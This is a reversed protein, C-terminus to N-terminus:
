LGRPVAEPASSYDAMAKAHDGKAEFATARRFLYATKRPFYQLSKNLDDIAEDHRGLALKVGAQTYLMERNGPDLRALADLDEQARDMRGREIWAEARQLYPTASKPLMAIAKAYDALAMEWDGKAKYIEARSYFTGTAEPNVRIAEGADALAKAWDGKLRYAEARELLGSWSWTKDSAKSAHTFDSIARDIDSMALFVRGRAIHYYGSTPERAIAVGYDKLAHDWRRMLALADARLGHYYGDRVDGATMAIARSSTEVAKEPEGVRGYLGSAQALTWASDPTLTLAHAIDMMAEADRGADIYASARDLYAKAREQGSLGAIRIAESRDGIAADHDGRQAHHKSRYKLLWRLESDSKPAAALMRTCAAIKEQLGADTDIYGTCDRDEALTPLTLALMSLVLAFIRCRMFDEPLLSLIREGCPRRHAPYWLHAEISVPGIAM